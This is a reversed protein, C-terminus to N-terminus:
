RNPRWRPGHVRRMEREWERIGEEYREDAKEECRLALGIAGIIGIIGLIEM